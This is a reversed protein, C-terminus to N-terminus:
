KSLVYKLTKMHIRGNFFCYLHFSPSGSSPVTLGPGRCHPPSTEKQNLYSKLLFYWFCKERLINITVDGSQPTASISFILFTVAGAGTSTSGWAKPNGLLHPSVAAHSVFWSKGQSGHTIPLHPFSRIKQLSVHSSSNCFDHLDTNISACRKWHLNWCSCSFGISTKGGSVLASSSCCALFPSTYM